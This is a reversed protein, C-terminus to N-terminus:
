FSTWRPSDHNDDFIATGDVNDLKAYTEASSIADQYNDFFALPDGFRDTELYYYCVYYVIAGIGRATRHYALAKIILSSRGPAPERKRARRRDKNTRRARRLAVRLLSQIVLNSYTPYQVECVQSRSKLVTKMVM